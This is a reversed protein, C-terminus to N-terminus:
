KMGLECVPCFYDTYANSPCTDWGTGPKYAKAELRSLHPLVLTPADDDKETGAKALRERAAKM